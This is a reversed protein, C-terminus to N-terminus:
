LCCNLTTLLELEERLDILWPTGWPDISPGRRKRNYTLSRCVHEENNDIKRKAPSVVIM